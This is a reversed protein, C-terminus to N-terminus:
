LELRSGSVFSTFLKLIKSLVAFMISLPAVAAMFAVAIELAQNFTLIEVELFVGEKPLQCALVSDEKGSM